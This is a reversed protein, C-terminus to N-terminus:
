FITLQLYKTESFFQFSLKPVETKTGTNFVLNEPLIKFCYM